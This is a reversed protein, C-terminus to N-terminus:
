DAQVNLRWEDEKLADKMASMVTASAPPDFITKVSLYIQTKVAELDTADGIFDNWTHIGSSDIVFGDAPGVGLQMLVMLARNIHVVIETDFVDYDAELGLMQKITTLISENM